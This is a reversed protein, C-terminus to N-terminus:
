TNKKEFETKQCNKGSQEIHIEEINFFLFEKVFINEYKSELIYTSKIYTIFYSHM